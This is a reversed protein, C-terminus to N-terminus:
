EDGEPTSSKDEEQDDDKADSEPEDEQLKIDFYNIEQEFNESEKM